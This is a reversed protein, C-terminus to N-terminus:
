WLNIVFIVNAMDYTMTM